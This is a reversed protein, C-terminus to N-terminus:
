KGGKLIHVGVTERRGALTTGCGDCQSTAFELGPADAAFVNAFDRGDAELIRSLPSGAHGCTEHTVGREEDTFGAAAFYCCECVSYEITEEIM